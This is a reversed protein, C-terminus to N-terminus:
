IIFVERFLKEGRKERENYVRRFKREPNGNIFAGIIQPISGPLVPPKALSKDSPLRITWLNSPM